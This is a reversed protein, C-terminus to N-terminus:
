YMEYQALQKSCIWWGEEASTIDPKSLTIRPIIKITKPNFGQPKQVNMIVSEYSGVIQKVKKVDANDDKEMRVVFDDIPFEQTNELSIDYSDGKDIINNIKIRIKDNCIDQATVKDASKQSSETSAKKIWTFVLVLMAIVFVIILVIVIIDVEGRKDHRM